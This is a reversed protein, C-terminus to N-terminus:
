GQKPTINVLDCIQDYSLSTFEDPRIAKDDVYFGDTGCWPKGVWIEDFPIDHQTLWDTIVPLTHANIKGVSGAHTRMNRATHIVVEFGQDKYDHLRAVVDTRPAVDAYNKTSDAITLTDDLDIVLRKM